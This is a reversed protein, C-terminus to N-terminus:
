PILDLDALLGRLRTKDAVKICADYVRMMRTAVLDPNFCEAVMRKGARGMEDRRAKSELLERLAEAMEAVSRSVVLGAGCRSISNALNVGSTVVVPIGAAMAEAAALGFNESHSPLVFVDISALMAARGVIDLLGTWHIRRSVGQSDARHQLGALTMGDDPGGVVLHAGDLLAVADVLLDLGKIPHIRGLFGVLPARQPISLKRRWELADVPDAITPPEVAVPVIAIPVDNVNPKAQIAEDETTFHIAAAGQVTKREFMRWYTIKRVAQQRIAWHNLSGQPSVIYPADAFRCVWAGGTVPFRWLGHIHVIDVNSVAQRCAQFLQWSLLLRTKSPFFSVPVGESTEKVLSGPQKPLGATTTLVSVEAGLRRQARALSATLHALGGMQHAPEYFPTIHLVRM